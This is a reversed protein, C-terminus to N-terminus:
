WIVDKCVCACPKVHPGHVASCMCVYGSLSLSVATQGDVCKQENSQNQNMFM